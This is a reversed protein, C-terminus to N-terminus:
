IGTGGNYLESIETPTLARDFIRIQDVKGLSESGWYTADLSSPGTISIPADGDKTLTLTGNDSNLCIFHWTGITISSNLTTNLGYVYLTTDSQGSGRFAIGDSISIPNSTFIARNSFQGSVFGTQNVWFCLSWNNGVPRADVPLNFKQSNVPTDSWSLADGLHGTTIVGGSQLTADFNNQTEDEVTNGTVTDFTYAVLLNPHNFSDISVAPTQTGLWTTADVKTFIEGTVTNTHGDGIEGDNPLPDNPAIFKVGLRARKDFLSTM